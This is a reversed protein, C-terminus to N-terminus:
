NLSQSAFDHQVDDLYGDRIHTALTRGCFSCVAPPSLIIVRLFERFAVDYEPDGQNMALDRHRVRAGRRDAADQYHAGEAPATVASTREAVVSAPVSAQLIKQRTKSKRNGRRVM